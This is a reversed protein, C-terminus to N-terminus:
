YPKILCIDEKCCMVGPFLWLHWWALQTNLPAPPSKLEAQLFWLGKRGWYWVWFKRCLAGEWSQASPTGPVAGCAPGDQYHLCCMLLSRVVFVEMVLSQMKTWMSMPDTGQAPFVLSLQKKGKFLLWPLLSTGATLFSLLLIGSPACLSTRSLKM